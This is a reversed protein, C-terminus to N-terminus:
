GLKGLAAMWGAKPSFQQWPEIDVVDVTSLDPWYGSATCAKFTAACAEFKALGNSMFNQGAELISVSHPVVNEAVVFVFPKPVAIGEYLCRALSYMYAQMDYDMEVADKAFLRLLAHRSTKLDFTIEPHYADIRVRMRLGTTPETFYITAETLSEEIFLGLKRGKYTTEFVKQALRRGAAFTPEDVVLKDPHAESFEAFAKTRDAVGPYVALEESVLHPQLLLLHVLSGFDKADSSKYCGVLGAQFHAPSVLIPKMLSCSLADRDGHYEHAPMSTFLRSDAVQGSTGDAVLQGTFARVDSLTDQLSITSEM